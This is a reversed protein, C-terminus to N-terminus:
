SNIESTNIGAAKMRAFAEASLEASQKALLEARAALARVEGSVDIPQVQYGISAAYARFGEHEGQRCALTYILQEQAYNLRQQHDPNLCRALWKGADVPDMEPRLIAGVIKNGGAADIAAQMCDEPDPKM